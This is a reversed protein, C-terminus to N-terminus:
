RATRIRQLLRRAGDDNPNQRLFDELLVFAKDDQRLRAYANALELVGDRELTGKMIAYSELLAVVKQPQNDDNYGPNRVIPIAFPQWTPCLNNPTLSRCTGSPPLRM